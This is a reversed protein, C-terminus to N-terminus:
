DDYCLTRFFGLVSQMSRELHRRENGLFVVETIEAGWKTYLRSVREIGAANALALAKADFRATMESDLRLWLHGSDLAGDPRKHGACSQVTCVGDLANLAACWDIMPPDPFGREDGCNPVDEPLTQCMAEWAQLVNVKEDRTLYRAQM